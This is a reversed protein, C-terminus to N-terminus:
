VDKVKIKVNNKQKYKKIRNQYEIRKTMIMRKGNIYSLFNGEDNMMTLLSRKHTKKKPFMMSTMGKM